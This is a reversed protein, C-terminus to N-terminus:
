RQTQQVDASPGVQSGSGPDRAGRVLDDPQDPDLSRHETDPFDAEGAPLRQQATFKVRGEIRVPPCTGGLRSTLTM